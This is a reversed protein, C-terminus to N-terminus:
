YVSELGWDHVGFMVKLVHINRARELEVYVAFFKIDFIRVNLNFVDVYQSLTTFNLKLLNSKVILDWM